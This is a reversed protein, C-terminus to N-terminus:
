GTLHIDGGSRGKFNAASLRLDVCIQDTPLLVPSCLVARGSVKRFVEPKGIVLVFYDQPQFRPPAELNPLSSLRFAM